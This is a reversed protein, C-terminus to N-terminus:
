RGQTKTGLLDNAKDILEQGKPQLSFYSIIGNSNMLMVSSGDSTLQSVVTDRPINAEGLPMIRKEHWVIIKNTNASLIDGDRSTSIQTSQGSDQSQLELALGFDLLGSSVNWSQIGGNVSTTLVQKSDRSFDFFDIAGLESELQRIVTLKDFDYLNIRYENERTLM